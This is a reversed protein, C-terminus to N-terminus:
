FGNFNNFDAQLVINHSILFPNYKKNYFFQPYRKRELFTFTKVKTHVIPQYAAINVLQFM